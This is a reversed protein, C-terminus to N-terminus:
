KKEILVAEDLKTLNINENLIRINIIRRLRFLRIENKELCFCKLYWAKSKFWLIYPEVERNHKGM